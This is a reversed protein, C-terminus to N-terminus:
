KGIGVKKGLENMYERRKRCGCDKVGLVSAVREKTIGVASLGKEVMDGLGVNKECPVVPYRGNAMRAKKGCVSCTLSERMVIWRCNM